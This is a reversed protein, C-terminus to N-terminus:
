KDDLNIDLMKSAFNAFQTNLWDYKLWLTILIQMDRNSSVQWITDKRDMNITQFNCDEFIVKDTEIIIYKDDIQTFSLINVKPWNRRTIWMRADTKNQYICSEMEELTYKGM